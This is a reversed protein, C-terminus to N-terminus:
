QEGVLSALLAKLRETVQRVDHTREVYDRAKRGMESRLDENSLLEGLGAALRDLDGDAVRGFGYDTLVGDPNVSLSLVPTAAIGAEIFTNPFGEVTSTNVLVKAREFWGHMDEVPVRSLLTMNQLEGAERSVMDFLATDLPRMIMVFAEGPFRRALELFLYPQKLAQSSAVWLVMNKPIETHLEPVQFPSPLIPSEIGHLERLARQQHQNECIVLDALRLGRFFLSKVREDAGLISGDVDGDSMVMYVFKCGFRRCWRAAQYTLEGAASQVYVDGGCNRFFESWLSLNRLRSLVPLGRRVQRLYHFQLRTTNPARRGLDEFGVHVEFGSDKALETAFTHMLKEAGGYDVAVERDFLSYSAFSLFCVKIM